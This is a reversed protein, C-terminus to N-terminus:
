TKISDLSLVSLPMFVIVPLWALLLRKFEQDAYLNGGALLKCAFTAVFCGGAGLLVMFIASKTNKKERSIMLPLGLLLMTMNILPDTFRFHKESLIEAREVPKLNRKLLKSLEANSMLNKFTSNRQLMLYEPPLDSSHKEPYINIARETNQQSDFGSYSIEKGDTLIWHQKDPNWTANTATILATMQRNTRLIVIMNDLTNDEPDYQGSFLAANKDPLNWIPIKDQIAMEDPKKVLKDAFHPLIIEQDIVMLLNLGFGLLIIPALVRKLSIGSALIAVLENQRTMRALSFIAALLIIVGSFDRFYEFTKPGYYALIDSLIQTATQAAVSAKEENFEDFQM